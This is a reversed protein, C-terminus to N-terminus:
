GRLGLRTLIDQVVAKPSQEVSVDLVHEDPAPRELAAFQSDLLSTPMFHHKRAAMRGAILSQSAVLHIMRVGPRGGALVDRYARKLASCTVIASTGAALNQDIWAAIAALWPARDVDTLAEGRTMKAINAAPHFEDADRYPWGLAKSLNRATTTKGSGAVGMVVLVLPGSM